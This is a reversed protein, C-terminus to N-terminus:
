DQLSPAYMRLFADAAASAVRRIESAEISPLAGLLRKELLEEDTLCKWYM